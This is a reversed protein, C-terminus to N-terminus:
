VSECAGTVRGAQSMEKAGLETHAAIESTSSVHVNIERKAPDPSQLAAHM